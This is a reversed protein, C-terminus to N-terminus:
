APGSALIQGGPDALQALQRASEAMTALHREIAAVRAEAAARAVREAALQAELDRVREALQAPDSEDNM